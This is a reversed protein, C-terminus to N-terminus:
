FYFFHLSSQWFIQIIPTAIEKSEKKYFFVDSTLFVYKSKEKYFFFNNSVKGYRM